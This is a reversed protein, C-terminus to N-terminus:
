EVEQFTQGDFRFLRYLPQKLDGKEDFSYPGLATQFTGSQLAEAIPGSGSRLAAVALETAAFAPLVYGDPVIDAEELASRATETAIDAWRPLGIMLTGDALPMASEEARLAEGGAIVLDYEMGAADRALIAIDSRDGGVFVHTAGSRNLRGALAIQNDLQPRFTDIFVPKLEQLEATARLNEALERGYITGDDVIAFFADRWRPLLLRAVADREADARPATRFVPWGTRERQDTLTATRVGPTIVPIGAEAFLPLAADIADTCLFGVVVSVNQDILSRAAAEGGETSCQTDAEIIRANLTQAAKRAGDRMQRGLLEFSDTLPAALGVVPEQAHAAPLSFAALSCCIFFALCRM